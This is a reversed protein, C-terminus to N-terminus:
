HTFDLGYGRMTSLFQDCVAPSWNQWFHGSMEDTILSGDAGRRLMGGVVTSQDAGISQALQQHPSGKLGVSAAPRGVTLRGTTPDFLYEIAGRPKYNRLAALSQVRDSAELM